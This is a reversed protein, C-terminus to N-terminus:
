PPYGRKKLRENVYNVIIGRDQKSIKTFKVGGIYRNSGKCRNVKRIEKVWVVNALVYISVIKSKLYDLPQYIEMEVFTSPSVFKDSGFSLGMESIDKTIWEIVRYDPKLKCFIFINDGIRSFKRRERQD